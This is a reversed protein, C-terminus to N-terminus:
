SLKVYLRPSVVLQIRNSLLLIWRRARIRVSFVQYGSLRAVECHHCTEMFECSWALSYNTAKVCLWALQKGKNETKINAGTMFTINIKNCLKQCALSHM